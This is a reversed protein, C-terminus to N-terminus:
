MAMKAPFQTLQLGIDSHTRMHYWRRLMDLLVVVASRLSFTPFALFNRDLCALLFQSYIRLLFLNGQNLMFCAAIEISCTCTSVKIGLAIVNSLSKM